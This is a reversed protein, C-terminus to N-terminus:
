LRKVKSMILLFNLSRIRESLAMLQERAKESLVNEEKKTKRM